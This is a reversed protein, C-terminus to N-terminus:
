MGKLQNSIESLQKGFPELVERVMNSIQIESIAAGETKSGAAGKGGKKKYKSNQSVDDKQEIKQKRM